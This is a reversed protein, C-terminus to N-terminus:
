QQELLTILRKTMLLSSKIDDSNKTLSVEKDKLLEVFQSIGVPAELINCISSLTFGLNRLIQIKDLESIQNESYYRYGNEENIEIPSFLNIKDYIM